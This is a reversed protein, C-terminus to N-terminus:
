VKIPAWITGKFVQYDVNATFCATQFLYVNDHTRLLLQVNGLVQQSECVWLVNVYRIFPM